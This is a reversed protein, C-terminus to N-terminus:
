RRRRLALALLPLLGVAGAPSGTSCGCGSVEGEGGFAMTQDIEALEDNLDDRNDVVVTGEGSEGLQEILLAAEPKVSQVYEFESMGMEALDDSSPITFSFGLPYQLFQAAAWPSTVTDTCLLTDKLTSIDEPMPLDPNFGFKPDVTMEVPSISSRLRTVLSHDVFLDEAAKRPAVEVEELEAIMADPDVRLGEYWDSWCSPCNYFDAETSPFGAPIPVHRRLVSLVEDTGLFGAMPLSEVMRAAVEEGQLLSTDFMRDSYVLGQLAGADSVLDTAFAQGGAEDAALSIVDDYNAGGSWYDLALPNLRVHLYNTPVARADGFMYVILPMDPAAAISTLAIPITPTTGEYRLGLPSLAGDAAGKRLKLALFNMDNAVYPGLVDELADPVDYGNDLLWGVLVEADDAALTTVDYAGVQQNGLVEVGGGDDGYYYGGGSDAVASSSSSFMSCTSDDGDIRFWTPLAAPLSQFLSSHSLFVDPEGKVPLVWAFDEAPGAYDVQVHMEVTEAEHDVGFIITEGTQDVPASQNCFFGGCALAVNPAALALLTATLTRM